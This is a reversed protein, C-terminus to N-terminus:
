GAKATQLPGRIRISKKVWRRFEMEGGPVIEVTVNGGGNGALEPLKSLPIVAEDERGEGIMALTPGTTIGGEALYPINPTGLTVSPLSVGFVSGGGITFQLRNWGGIIKNVVSRFGTWLGSFMNSLAGRIRGPMDRFWQIVSKVKDIVTKTVSGWKSAVLAFAIKLQGLKDSIMNRGAVFFSTIKRWASVFFNAFPGAFWAGVGKLFGWVAEWVTQFFKTKTAVLVIVAILALIGIVIWTVPSLALAANWAMQAVVVIGVAAALLGLGIALPTVWSSNKQLWGFTKEIYPIAKALQEVLASQAQRKFAEMKAGASQELAKGARDAAGKVGDISKSAKGINLAFLATGLDEGPGGFLASVAQQVKATEPGTKNMADIVQDFAKQASPGGAAIKKELDQANLGLDTFANKVAKSGETGRLGFEKFADAIKDTDRAGAKLGQSMLGLAQQSTGGFRGFFVSYENFTDLLDESKNIGLETGRQLIDFAEESSKAVGTRLMQAVAAGVKSADEEMILALNSIKAGADAIASTSADPPVLANQLAIRVSSTADELSGVVGRSYVEGAAKGANAAAPTGAGLQAELTAIPKSTEIVSDIGALLAAGAAAGGIAAGAKVGAWTKKFRGEIDKTGKAIEKTDLGIQILLDALTAM